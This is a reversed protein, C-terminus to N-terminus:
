KEKIQQFYVDELQVNIDDRKAHSFDTGFICGFDESNIYDALQQNSFCNNEALYILTPGLRYALEQATNAAAGWCNPWPENNKRALAALAATGSVLRPTLAAHTDETCAALTHVLRLMANEVPSNCYRAPLEPTPGDTSMSYLTFFPSNTDTLIPLALDAAEDQVDVTLVQVWQLYQKEQWFCPTYEAAFFVHLEYETHMSGNPRRVSQGPLIGVFSQVQLHGKEAQVEPPPAQVTLRGNQCSVSVSWDKALLQECLATNGNRFWTGRHPKNLSVTHTFAFTSKALNAPLPMSASGLMAHYGNHVDDPLLAPRLGLAVIGIAGLTLVFITRWHWKKM